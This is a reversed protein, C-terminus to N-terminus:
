GHGGGTPLPRAGLVCTDDHPNAHHLQALLDALPQPRREASTRDLTAVVPALGEEMTRDRHEVLGDTYFLLLDGPIFSCAATGYQPEPLAGLLPGAPRDLEDTRGGRARLPPPHGAQAWVLVAAIPDYRAVVASATDSTAGSRTGGAYLLRNLHTLLEAPESTTTVTLAALVHRLQAMAAAARVGHGAVDGVALVVSGDGAVAAHFWDGGVRQAQVAPLYRVAVRLGPLDIPATPIPLVIQQLEVALRHEAELSRRHEHLQQEVQALRARNTEHATVDQIIGYVRVPRGDADRVADAISRIHKVRGGLRVRFTMDVTEGRGFSEIAQRRVPLDEPLTLADVDTRSLPGDAPAREFIRYIGVSWVVEGTIVNWEGWGLNGLRETQAVREGLRSEEDHRAWSSLVGPGLPRVQVTLTVDAPAHAAPSEYPIPGVQRPRGDAITERWADWVPGDVITPYIERVRMGLMEAGSRGSLDVTAPSAAMFVYDEIRGSGDRVPMLAIHRGPMADLIQQAVSAWDGGAM